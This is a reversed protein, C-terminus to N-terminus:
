VAPCEKAEAAPLAAPLAAPCVTAAATIPDRRALTPPPAILPIGSPGAPTNPPATTPNPTPAASSRTCPRMFRPPVPPLEAGDGTAGPDIEPNLSRPRGMSWLLTAAWCLPWTAPPLVAFKVPEVRVSLPSFSPCWGRSRSTRERIVGGAAGAGAAVTAGMAVTLM